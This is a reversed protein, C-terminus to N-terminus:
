GGGIAEQVEPRALFDGALSGDRFPAFSRLRKVAERLLGQLHSLQAEYCEESRHCRGEYFYTGCKCKNGSSWEAGCFKCRDSM